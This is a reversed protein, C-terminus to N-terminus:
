DILEMNPRIPYYPRLIHTGRFHGIEKMTHGKEAKPPARAERAFLPMCRIDIQSKTDSLQGTHQETEKEGKKKVPSVRLINTELGDILRM